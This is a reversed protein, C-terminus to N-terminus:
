SRARDQPVHLQSFFSGGAQSSTLCEWWDRFVYDYKSVEKSWKEVTDWSRILIDAFTTQRPEPYLKSHLGPYQLLVKQTHNGQSGWLRIKPRFGLNSEADTKSDDIPKAIKEVERLTSDKKNFLKVLDRAAGDAIQKKVFSKGLNHYEEEERKPIGDRRLDLSMVKGALLPESNGATWRSFSKYAGGVRDM